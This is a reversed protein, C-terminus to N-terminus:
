TVALTALLPTFPEAAKSRSMARLVPWAVSSARTQTHGVCVIKACRIFRHMIERERTSQVGVWAKKQLQFARM